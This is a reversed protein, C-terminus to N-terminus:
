LISEFINLYKKYITDINYRDLSNISKKALEIRKEPNKILLDLENCMAESNQNDILLGNVNHTIIEAPGSICDYSICAMGQSMAELLVMPLGEFRSTMIYIESDRMIDSVETSFGEFIINDNLNEKKALAKLFNTGEEGGGVLRLKWGPNNDLVPGIMKLLNDFGKHHYRNLAGVALITKSRNRNEEQYVDFTCPNPMVFVNVNRTKYFKKDFNTLVTLANSFKYMYKRTIRGLANTEELHNNHESAIIKIGFFKSVMIAILNTEIMFSILVDPRNKKHYYYQTLNKFSRIMHNKIKGHHLRVRTIGDNPKWIEPENFTIISVQHGMKNFYNALLILVREAGGSVLSNVVFDIKM